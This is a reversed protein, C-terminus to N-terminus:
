DASGSLDTKENNGHTDTKIIKSLTTGDRFRTVLPADKKIRKVSTVIKGEQMTLTYGRQLINDPDLIRQKESLLNLKGLQEAFYHQLSKTLRKGLIEPTTTDLQHRVAYAIAWGTRNLKGALNLALNQSGHTLRQMSQQLMISQTLQYGGIAKQLLNSSRVLIQGAGALKNSAASRLKGATKNLLHQNDLLQMQTAQHLQRSRQALLEIFQQMGAIFFEAAATPTKMRTHAVRDVITEDKEHGIGTIVPIPFQAIAYALEFSDFSSLDAAAGGGRIIAVADFDDERLYILDLAALISSIADRGQMFAEFLETTFNLNHRNNELQHIFDEYGAATASSIIAIRQPVLPLPLERNMDIVGASELRLLIERRQRAQDGLTYNPDIDKINLSLGYAPHFEVSANLLVSIGPRLPEGTTHEFYPRILRWSYSWITARAKAEIELTVDNKEILELYCHGSRNEKLESIEAVLWVSEPFADQLRNRILLNLELLTLQNEM